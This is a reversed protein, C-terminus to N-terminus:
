KGGGIKQDMLAVREYYEIANQALRITTAEGAAVTGIKRAVCALATAADRWAVLMSEPSSELSATCEDPMTVVKVKSKADSSKGLMEKVRPGLENPVPGASQVLWQIYECWRDPPIEKEVSDLAAKWWELTNVSM